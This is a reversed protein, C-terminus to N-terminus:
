VTGSQLKNEGGEVEELSQWQKFWVLVVGDDDYADSDVLYVIVCGGHLERGEGHGEKGAQGHSLEGTERGTSYTGM